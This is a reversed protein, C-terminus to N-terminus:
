YLVQSVGHTYWDDNTTGSRQYWKGFDPYTNTINVAEQPDKFAEPVM